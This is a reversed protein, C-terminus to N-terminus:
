FPQGVKGVNKAVLLGPNTGDDIRAAVDVNVQLCRLAVFYADAVDQFRVNVGVKDGAAALQRPSRVSRNIDAGFTFVSKRGPRQTLVIRKLQAFVGEDDNIWCM